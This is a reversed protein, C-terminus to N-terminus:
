TRLGTLLPDPFLGTDPTYLFTADILFHCRNHYTNHHVHTLTHMALDSPFLTLIDPSYKQYKQSKIQPILLYNLSQSIALTSLIKIYKYCQLCEDNNYFWIYFFPSYKKLM